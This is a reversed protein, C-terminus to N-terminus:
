REDAACHRRDLRFAFRAVAPHRCRGAGGSDVRRQSAIVPTGSAMAELVPLGFGEYLSPYVLATAARYLTQLAITKSWASESSPM